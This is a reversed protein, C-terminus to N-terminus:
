PSSSALPLPTAYLLPPSATKQLSPLSISISLPLLASDPLHLADPLNSLRVARAARGRRASLLRPHAHTHFCPTEGIQRAEQCEVRGVASSGRLRLPLKALGSRAFIRVIMTHSLWEGAHVPGVARDRRSSGRLALNKGSWRRVAAPDAVRRTRLERVM